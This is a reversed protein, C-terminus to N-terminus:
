NRAFSMHKPCQECIKQMEDLLWRGAPGPPASSRTIASLPVLRPEAGQAELVLQTLGGQAIDAQVRDLPLYGWGLGARILDLKTSADAVRWTQASFIGHTVGSETQSRQAIVIQVAERVETDSLPAGKQALAHGASAVPVMPIHTLFRRALKPDDLAFPESIGLQCSGNLVLLPVAEMVETQVRLSVSPFRAQFARGFAILMDAPCIASVAVSVELELGEAVASARAGLRHIASLIQRADSLLRKGTPTLAPRRGSRDFLQVDLNRELNAIGYSVASQARHLRRSTASFSGDDAVGVFLRIQDLTLSDIEIM